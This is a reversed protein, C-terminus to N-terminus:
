AVCPARRDRGPSIPSIYPLYLPSIARRVDIEDMLLVLSPRFKAVALLASGNPNPSPNPNPNPSPSPHPNPHPNPHPCAAQQLPKVVALAEHFSVKAEATLGAAAKSGKAVAELVELANSLRSVQKPPPHPHPTPNPYPSLRVRVRPNPHPSVRVRM